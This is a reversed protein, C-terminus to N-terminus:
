EDDDDGEEWGPPKSLDVGLKEKLLRVLRETSLASLDDESVIREDHRLEWEDDHLYRELRLTPGDTWVPRIFGKEKFYLGTGTSMRKLTCYPAIAPHRKVFEMLVQLADAQKQLSALRRGLKKESM